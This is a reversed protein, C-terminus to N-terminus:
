WRRWHGKGKFHGKGWGHGKGHHGPVVVVGPVPAVIVPQPPAVIVAPPAPAVVVPQPPAVVVPQPPAVVVPQPPAVVVTPPTWVVGAWEPPPTVVVKPRQEVYPRYEVELAREIQPRARAAEPPVPGVYFVVNNQVKYGPAEPQPYPHYHPGKMFCFTPPGAAVAVAPQETEEVPIPHHGYYVTKEGDYGFPVPDGTFVADQGVQQYLAPRDPAYNHFHPVDIYCYGGGPRAVVPHAGVFRHRGPGAAAPASSLAAGALLALAAIWSRTTRSMWAGM